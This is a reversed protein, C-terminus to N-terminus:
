HTAQALAVGLSENAEHLHESLTQVEEMEQQLPSHLSSLEAAHEEALARARRLTEVAAGILAVVAIFLVVHPPDKIILSLASGGEMRAISAAVIMTGITLLIARLRGVFWVGGAGATVMLLYSYAPWRFAGYCALATTAVVAADRGLFLETRTGHSPRMMSRDILDACRACRLRREPDAAGVGSM